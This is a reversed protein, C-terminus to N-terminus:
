VCIGRFRHKMQPEEKRNPQPQLAASRDKREQRSQTLVSPGTVIWGAGSEIQLENRREAYRVGVGCAGLGLVGM